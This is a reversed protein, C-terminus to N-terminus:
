DQDADHTTSWRERAAQRSMGTARGIAAWSAPPNQMRAEAVALDLDRRAMAFAHTALRVQGLTELPEIHAQWAELAATDVTHGDPLHADDPDEGNHRGPITEARRWSLGTWGCACAAQWGVLDAWPILDQSEEVTQPQVRQRTTATATDPRAVLFGAATSSGSLRGDPAVWAAWGEHVGALAEDHPVWGM